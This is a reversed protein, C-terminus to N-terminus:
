KKEAIIIGYRVFDYHTKLMGKYYNIGTEKAKSGMVNIYPDGELQIGKLRSRMKIDIRDTCDEMELVEFGTKELLKSYIELNEQFWIGNKYLPTFEPIISYANNLTGKDGKLWENFGIKAGKKLHENIRKFAKGKEQWHCTTENCFAKTFDNRELSLEEVNQEYYEVKDQVGHLIACKKAKIIQDPNIDIGVIKCGILKALLRSPAGSGEGLSLVYDGVTIDLKKFLATVGHQFFHTIGELDFIRRDISTKPNIRYASFIKELMECDHVIFGGDVQYSDILNKKIAKDM